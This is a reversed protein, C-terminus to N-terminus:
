CLSDQCFTWLPSRRYRISLVHQAQRLCALAELADLRAIVAFIPAQSDDQSM